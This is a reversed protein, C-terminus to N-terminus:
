FRPLNSLVDNFRTIGSKINHVDSFPEYHSATAGLGLSPLLPACLLGDTGIKFTNAQNIDQEEQLAQQLHPVITTTM